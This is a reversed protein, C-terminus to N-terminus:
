VGELLQIYAEPFHTLVSFGLHRAADNAHGDKTQKFWGIKRLTTNTMIRKAEARGQLSFTANWQASIWRAAGNTELADVQASMPRGKGSVDYREAAVIWNFRRLGLFEDLLKLTMSPPYEYSAFKAAYVALGCMAGGDIAIFGTNSPIM